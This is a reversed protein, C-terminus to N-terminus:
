YLKGHNLTGGEGGIWITHGSTLDMDTCCLMCLAVTPDEEYPTAAGRCSADSCCFADKMDYHLVDACKMIGEHILMRIRSCAKSYDRAVDVHVEIYSVSDIITFEAPFTKYKFSVCNRHLCVPNKEKELLACEKQLFAVLCTFIGYPVVHNPFEILLPEVSHNKKNIKDPSLPNLLAPMLYDGNELPVMIFLHSMLATFHEVTFISNVFIKKLDNHSLFERSVIAHDRLKSCSADNVGANGLVQPVCRGALEHKCQVLFTIINLIVQPDCFIVNKLSPVNHYWLLLNYKVMHLLAAELNQDGMDLTNALQLCSSFSLVGRVATHKIQRELVFWKIPLSTDTEGCCHRVIARRLGAAVEQDYSDPNVGNIDWIVESRNKRILYEPNVVEKVMRSKEEKKESSEQEKDRHTGVVFVKPHVDGAHATRVCQELVQKHSLPSRYPEGVPQSNKGYFFIMPCHNLRESLNIAFLVASVDQVFAPLLELFQPQGGSDIFEVLKVNFKKTNTENTLAKVLQNVMMDPVSNSHDRSTVPSDTSSSLPTKNVPNSITNATADNNSPLLPEVQYASALIKVLKADDIVEWIDTDKDDVDVLCSEVSGVFAQVPNDALGTSIRGTHKDTNEPLLLRKLHTKGVGAIGLVLCKIISIKVSGQKM